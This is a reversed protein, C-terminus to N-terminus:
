NPNKLLVDGGCDCLVEWDPFRAKIDNLTSSDRYLTGSDYETWVLRTKPLMNVAGDFVLREAGQVDMWLFDIHDLGNAACFDDLRWGQVEVDSM